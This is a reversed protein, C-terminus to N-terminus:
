CRTIVTRRFVPLTLTLSPKHGLESSQKSYKENRCLINYKWFTSLYVDIM